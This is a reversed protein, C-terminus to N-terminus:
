CLFLSQGQKLRFFPWGLVAVFKKHTINLVWDRWWSVGTLVNLLIRRWKDTSEPWLLEAWSTRSNEIKLYKAILLNAVFSQEYTDHVKLTYFLVLRTILNKNWIFSSTLWCTHTKSTTFRECCNNTIRSPFWWWCLKCNELFVDAANVYFFNM